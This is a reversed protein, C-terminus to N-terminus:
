PEVEKSREPRGVAHFNGFCGIYVISEAVIPTRCPGGTEFRWRLQGTGADVSYLFDTEKEAGPFFIAKNFVALETGISLSTIPFVQQNKGGVKMTWNQSGTRADLGYLVGEATRFYVAGEAIVPVGPVDKVKFNWKEKGSEGDITYLYGKSGVYITGESIAPRSVDGKTKFVWKQQRKQIDVAHFSGNLTSFYAVDNLLVPSSIFTEKEGPVTYRWKEKGTKIELAHLVRRPHM